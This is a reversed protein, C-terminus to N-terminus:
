LKKSGKALLNISIHSWLNNNEGTSAHTGITANGGEAIGIAQPCVVTNLIYAGGLCQAIITRL